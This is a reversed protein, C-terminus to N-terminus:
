RVITGRKQRVVRVSVGFEQDLEDILAAPPEGEVVVEVVQRQPEVWSVRWPRCDGVAGQLRRLIALLVAKDRDDNMGIVNAPEQRRTTLSGAPSMVFAAPEEHLM